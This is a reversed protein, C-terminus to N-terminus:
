ENTGRKDLEEVILEFEDRCEKFEKMMPEMTTWLTEMKGSLFKLRENLQKLNLETFSM